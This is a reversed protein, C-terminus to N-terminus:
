KISSLFGGQHFLTLFVLLSFCCCIFGETNALMLLGSNPDLSGGSQSKMFTRKLRLERMLKTRKPSLLDRVSSENDNVSM